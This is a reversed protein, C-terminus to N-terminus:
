CHHTQYQHEIVALYARLLIRNDGNDIDEVLYFHADCLLRNLMTVLEIDESPQIVDSMVKDRLNIFKVVDIDAIHKKNKM